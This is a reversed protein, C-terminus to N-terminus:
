LSSLGGTYIPHLDFNFFSDIRIYATNYQPQNQLVCVCQSSKKVTLVSKVSIIKEEFFITVRSVGGGGGIAENGQLISSCVM